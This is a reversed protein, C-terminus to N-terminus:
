AVAQKEALDQVSKVIEVMHPRKEPSPSVCLLAIRLLGLVDDLERNAQIAPDMADEDSARSEVWKPLDSDPELLLKQPSKGTVLELLLVGFSYVDGKYNIKRADPAAEPPTYGGPKVGPARAAVETLLGYDSWRAAGEKDLLVNSSKIGGHVVKKSHLFVLGNAAQSAIRLRAEWEL